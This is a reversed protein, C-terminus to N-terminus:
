KKKQPEWLFMEVFVFLFHSSPSVLSFRQRPPFDPSRCVPLLLIRISWASLQSLWTHLFVRFVHLGGRTLERVSCPRSGLCPTHTSLAFTECVSPLGVRWASGYLLGEQQKIWKRLDAVLRFSLRAHSMSGPITAHKWYASSPSSIRSPAQAHHRHRLLENSWHALVAHARFRGRGM